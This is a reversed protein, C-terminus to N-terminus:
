NKALTFVQKLAVVVVAPVVLLRIAGFINGLTMTIVDTMEAFTSTGLSSAIIISLGALLFSTTEKSTINLFGVIIGIVMLIVIITPNMKGLLGVVLALLIGIVFAWKGILDKM